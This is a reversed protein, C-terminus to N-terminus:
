EAPTGAKMEDVIEATSQNHLGPKDTYEEEPIEIEVLASLKNLTDEIPCQEYEEQKLFEEIAAHKDIAIDIDPSNGKQYIGATIMTERDAYNAMMTRVIGVAKQTQKGTVRKALRSISALVDIAPYHYAQALRRSLVIHGDLTGRVKDVIPDNMDDGDALVTYFATISGKDNTGTRELLKPIMDFVSPPYGKQAPPEGNALGIERQAQAFRTVSDLMLVVDKGKDRFYEAIATCVYAARLRCISPQDGTAIVLVSRELGSKGLDRNIFDLVERGREGILGIVNIDADTNRAIMSLLTSKGIGSGAFIGIRQGKAVTLLSDIARVGTQIRKNNPLRTMPDPADAVAPYYTEPVIEPGDDCVHGTADVTRGLLSMGVPVKLVSGSAIVECGVEIGKTNGFATLKVIKENLGVVEALISTGDSLKITCIEGIVSRPGESEIDLGRVAVVSGIYHITEADVVQELYKTFNFERTYSSKM